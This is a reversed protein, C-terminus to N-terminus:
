EPEYARKFLYTKIQRKFSSVSSSSRIEHPISNWMFPSAYSFARSGHTHLNCAPQVLQQNSVSWINRKPVYINILDSKYKLALDNRAKFTLVLLKYMIRQKVPLWHLGYLVPTIHENKGTLTVVRAASNQVRQLREILYSPLGYLVSICFDLRSTVFAHVLCEALRCSLYRRIRSINRLHYFGSKCIHTIHQEMSLPLDMM